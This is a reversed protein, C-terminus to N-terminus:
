KCFINILINHGWLQRIEAIEKLFASEKEGKAEFVFNTVQANAFDHGRVVSM